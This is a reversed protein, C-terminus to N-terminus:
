SSAAAGSERSTSSTRSSSASTRCAQAREIEALDRLVLVAGEIRDDHGRVPWASALVPTVGDAKRVGLMRDRTEVGRLATTIPNDAVALPSGDTSELGLAQAHEDLDAGLVPPRGLIRRASTNALVPRGRADHVVVGHETLREALARLSAERAHLDQELSETV